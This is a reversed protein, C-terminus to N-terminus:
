EEYNSFSNSVNQLIRQSAVMKQFRKAEKYLESLIFINTFVLYFKEFVNYEPPVISIEPRSRRLYLTKIIDYIVMLEINATLYGSSILHLFSETTINIGETEVKIYIRFTGGLALWHWLLSKHKNINLFTLIPM